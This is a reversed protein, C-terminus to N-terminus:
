CPDINCDCGPSCDPSCDDLGKASGRGAGMGFMRLTLCGSGVDSCSECADCHDCKRSSNQQSSRRRQRNQSDTENEDQDSTDNQRSENKNCSCEGKACLEKASIAAAKCAKLRARILPIARWLGLSQIQRKAYGSCGTDDNHFVRYACSFGKKPSIKHQYLNIGSLAMKSLM